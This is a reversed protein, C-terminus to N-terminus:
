QMAGPKEMKDMKDMKDAKKHTGGMKETKGMKDRKGMADRTDPKGMADHGMRDEALGNVAGLAFCLASAILTTRKLHFKRESIRRRIGGSAGQDHPTPSEQRDQPPQAM